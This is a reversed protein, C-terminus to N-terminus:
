FDPWGIMGHIWSDTLRNTGLGYVLRQLNQWCNFPQWLEFRVM